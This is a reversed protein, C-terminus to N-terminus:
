SIFTSGIGGFSIYPIEIKGNIEIVGFIILYGMTDIVELGNEPFCYNHFINCVIYYEIYDLFIIRNARL